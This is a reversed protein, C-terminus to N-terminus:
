YLLTFLFIVNPDHSPIVVPEVDEPPAYGHEEAPVLVVEGVSSSGLLV